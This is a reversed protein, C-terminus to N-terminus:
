IIVSSVTVTVYHSKERDFAAPAIFLLFIIITFIIKVIIDQLPCYIYVCVGSLIM